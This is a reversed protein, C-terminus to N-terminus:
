NLSTEFAQESENLFSGSLLIPMTRAGALGDDIGTEITQCAVSRTSSAPKRGPRKTWASRLIGSAKSAAGGSPTGTAVANGHIEITQSISDASTVPALKSRSLESHTHNAHGETRPSQSAESAHSTLESKTYVSTATRDSLTTDENFDNICIEIDQCSISPLILSQVADDNAALPSPPCDRRNFLRFVGRGKGSTAGDSSNGVIDRSSGNEVKSNPVSVLATEAVVTADEDVRPIPPNSNTSSVRSGNLSNESLDHKSDIDSKNNSLTMETGAGADSSQSHCGLNSGNSEDQASLSDADTNVTLIRLHANEPDMEVGAMQTASSKMPEINTETHKASGHHKHSVDTSVRYVEVQEAVNLNIRPTKEKKRKFSRRFGGFSSAARLRSPSLSDSVDLAKIEQNDKSECGTEDILQRSSTDKQSTESAHPIPKSDTHLSTSTLNSVITDGTFDDILMEVDECSSEVTSSTQMTDNANKSTSHRGGHKFLSFVSRSATRDSSKDNTVRYSANKLIGKPVPLLSNEDVAGADDEEVETVLPTSDALTVEKECHSETSPALDDDVTSTAKISSSMAARAKAYSTQTHSADSHASSIRLHSNELEMESGVTKKVPETSTDAHRDSVADNRSKDTPIRLIVVTQTDNLYIRTARGVVVQEPEKVPIPSTCETNPKKTESSRRRSHHPKFKRLPRGFFRAGKVRSTSSVTAQEGTGQVSNSKDLEEKDDADKSRTETENTHQQISAEREKNILSKSALTEAENTQQPISADKEKNLAKRAVKPKYRHKLFSTEREKSLDTGVLLDSSSEEDDSFSNPVSSQYRMSEFTQFTDNEELTCTENDELTRTENDELTCTENGELTCTENGELTRTENGELTRTENEELTRTPQDLNLLAGNL